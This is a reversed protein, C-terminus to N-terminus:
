RGNDAKANIDVRLQKGSKDTAMAADWFEELEPWALFVSEDSADAGLMESFASNIEIMRGEDDAIFVPDSIAEFIGLQSM